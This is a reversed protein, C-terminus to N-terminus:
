PVSVSPRSVRRSLRSWWSRLRLSRQFYREYGSRAWRASRWTFKHWRTLPVLAGGFKKKFRGHGCMDYRALGREAAMRIASWHLFENPCLDRGDEWSAGGWFYLTRDDHPFLGTALLRGDADRVRLALLLDAKKLHAVLMRPVERPYPPVLGKRRMVDSYQDYFEDAVTADDTDEVTLGAKIAKRVRNRCTSDLTKWTADADMARLTVAYTWGPVPEYGASRLIDDSLLRSETELMAVHERRAVMEVAELFAGQDLSADAIPGLFNTGWSKLPSGLIRFPGKRVIGATFYGVLTGGDVISWFRIDARRSAALYDLWARRHFLEAAPYTAVIEDWRALVEPPLTLLEYRPL